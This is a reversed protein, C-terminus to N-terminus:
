CEFVELPERNSCMILNINSGFDDLHQRAVIYRGTVTEKSRRPNVARTHGWPLVLVLKGRPGHGLRRSGPDEFVQLRRKVVKEIGVAKDAKERAKARSRQETPFAQTMLPELNEPLENEEFRVEKPAASAAESDVEPRVDFSPKASLLEPRAGPWTATSIKTSLLEPRTRAAMVLTTVGGFILQALNEAFQVKM